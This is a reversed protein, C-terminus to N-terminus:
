HATSDPEHDILRLLLERAENDSVLTDDALAGMLITSVLRRHPDPLVEVIATFACVMAQAVATPKM